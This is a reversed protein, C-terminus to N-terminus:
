YCDELRWSKRASNSKGSLRKWNSKSLTTKKNKRLFLSVGYKRQKIYDTRNVESRNKSFRNQLRSRKMYARALPKNMFPTNNGNRLFHGYESNNHDANERMRVSYPSIGLIEEYASRTHSFVSWFLESYPCKERLTSRKLPFSM